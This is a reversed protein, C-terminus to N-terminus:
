DFTCTSPAFRLKENFLDFEWLPNQQLISGINSTPVGDLRVFGLCKVDDGVVYSKVPPEFKAGNGFHIALKPMLTENYGTTSDFCHQLAISQNDKPKPFKTISPLFAQVLKDYAPAAFWSLPSGTDLIMGGTRGNPRIAVCRVFGLCKVYDGVVYSKVLPEFKAGNGFHIALKPILTENYGTTSNFCHQLAIGKNNKPKPFKTISPLLAQILKDYVPAALWTLTSGTDLIMGGTQGNPDYLWVDSPIDLMIGDVSIGSVNLHYYKSWTWHGVILDTEQMNPVQDVRGFALYGSVNIPSSNDVLCYAFSTTKTQRLAKAAFSQREPGLGLQGDLRDFESTIVETCGITINGLRVKQNGRMRITVTDNGVTGVLRTDDGLRYDYRCPADPKPCVENVNSPILDSTCFSSSCPISRYTRSENPRYFRTNYCNKCEKRCKIWTLISCTSLEMLYKKPPIGIRMSVFYGFSGLDLASRLPLEVRSPKSREANLGDVGAASVATRRRRGSCNTVFTERFCKQKGDDDETKRKGRITM